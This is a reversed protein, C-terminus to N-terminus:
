TTSIYGSVATVAPRLPRRISDNAKALDFCNM